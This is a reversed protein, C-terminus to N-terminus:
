IWFDERNHHSVRQEIPPLKMYDGYTATLFEHYNGPARVKTGEFSLYTYKMYKEKDTVSCMGNGWVINAVKNSSETKYKFAHKIQMKNVRESNFFRVLVRMYLLKRFVAMISDNPKIKKSESDTQCSFSFMKSLVRGMKVHRKIGFNSKPLGTLPFIDINVGIRMKPHENEYSVTRKDMIKVFPYPYNFEESIQTNPAVLLLNPNDNKENYNKILWNYDEDPMKVDIDDDWPIFGKHRVAGLLTGGSVFYNINNKECFNIYDILIDLELKQVEELSIEKSQNSLLNM